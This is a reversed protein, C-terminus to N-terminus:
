QAMFLVVRIGFWFVHMLVSVLIMQNGARIRGCSRVWFGMILGITPLFICVLTEVTTAPDVSPRDKAGLYSRKMQRAVFDYGCDCRQAEPPNVMGCTPCDQVM